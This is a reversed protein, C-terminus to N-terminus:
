SAASVALAIAVYLPEGVLVLRQEEGSELPAGAKAAAGAELMDARAVMVGVWTKPRAPDTRYARALAEGGQGM